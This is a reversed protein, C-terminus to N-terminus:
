KIEEWSGEGIDIMYVKKVGLSETTSLKYLAPITTPELIAWQWNSGPGSITSKIENTDLDLQIAKVGTASGSVERVILNMQNSNKSAKMLEINYQYRQDSTYRVPDSEVKERGGSHQLANIFAPTCYLLVFIFVVGLIMISASLQSNWKKMLIVISIINIILSPVGYFLMIPLGILDLSKQFNSTAGILFWIFVSLNIFSAAIWMLKIWTSM